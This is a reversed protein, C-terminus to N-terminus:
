AAVGDRLADMAQDLVRKDWINRDLGPIKIPAPVMGRRWLTNFTGPSVGWYAASKPLSLGRPEIHDSKEM